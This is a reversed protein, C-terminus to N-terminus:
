DQLEEVQPVVQCRCNPHLAGGTVDAYDIPMTGGESGQVVDGKDYFNEDIGVVTGHLPACFECVLEDAATYWVLKQVGSQRYAERGAMNAVRFAETKAVREARVDSSFEGIDSIRNKLKDIGEGADLGDRLADRLLRTTEEQYTEAM